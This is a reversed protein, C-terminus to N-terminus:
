SLSIPAFRRGTVGGDGRLAPPTTMKQRYGFSAVTRVQNWPM